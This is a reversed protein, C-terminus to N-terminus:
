IKIHYNTHIKISEFELDPILIFCYFGYADHLANTFLHLPTETLIAIFCSDQLLRQTVGCYGGIYLTVPKTLIIYFLFM